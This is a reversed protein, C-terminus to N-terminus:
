YIKECTVVIRQRADFAPEFSRRDAHEASAPLTQFQQASHPRGRRCGTACQGPHHFTRDSSSRGYLITVEAHDYLPKGRVRVRERLSLSCCSGVRSLEWRARNALPRAIIRGRGLPSPRPSPFCLKLLLWTPDFSKQGLVLLTDSM